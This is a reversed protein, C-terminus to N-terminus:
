QCRRHSKGVQRSMGLHQVVKALQMRMFLSCTPCWVVASQVASPMCLAHLTLRSIYEATKVLLVEAALLMAAAMMCSALWV